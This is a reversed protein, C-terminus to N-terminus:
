IKKSFGKPSQIYVEKIKSGGFCVMKAKVLKRM